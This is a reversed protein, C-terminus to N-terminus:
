HRGRNRIKCKGDTKRGDRVGQLKINGEKERKRYKNQNKSQAVGIM